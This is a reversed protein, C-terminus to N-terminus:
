EHKETDLVKKVKDEVADKVREIVGKASATAEKLSHKATEVSIKKPRAAERKPLRLTLVGGNLDASVHDADVGAPLTFSRSFSGFSREYTFYTDGEDRQEEERTGSVTLRDGTLSIDLDEDRVGPLDAKFTYSDETERVDFDPAFGVPASLADLPSLVRWPDWDFLDRISRLPSLTSTGSPQRIVNAV